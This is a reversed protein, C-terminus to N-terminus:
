RSKAKINMENDDVILLKAGNADIITSETKPKQKKLPPEMSIIRQDLSITFKSGKGFKSQIMEFKALEPNELNNDIELYDVQGEPYNDIVLKIPDLVAMM